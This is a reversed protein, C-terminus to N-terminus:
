IVYDNGIDERIITLDNNKREEGFCSYVYDKLVYVNYDNEFLNHTTVLVCAEVDIGCVYINEINNSKIYNILEDNYASYTGKDFVKNNGTCYM